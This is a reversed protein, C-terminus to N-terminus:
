SWGWSRASPGLKGAFYDFRTLPRSLYLPMANFRMDQSILNPGVILVLVMAVYTEALLFMSFLLTWVPGRFAKPDAFVGRPLFPFWAQFGEANQELLGWLALFLGLALAPSLSLLLAMRTWRNKLHSRVGRRAVAVWRWAHGSRKGDWHQYGQDFIPM